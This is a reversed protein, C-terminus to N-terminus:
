APKVEFRRRGFTIQSRKRVSDRKCMYPALYKQAAWVATMKEAGCVSCVLLVKASM